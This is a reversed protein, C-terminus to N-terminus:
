TVISLYLIIPYIYSRVYYLNYPLVSQVITTNDMMECHLSPMALLRRWTVLFRNLLFYQPVNVRAPPLVFFCIMQLLIIFNLDACAGIRQLNTAAVDVDM